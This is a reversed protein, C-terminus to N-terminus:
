SVEGAILKGIESSMLEIFAATSALKNTTVKKGNVIKEVNHRRVADRILLVGFEGMGGRHQECRHERLREAYRAVRGFNGETAKSALGVAVAYLTAPTEPIPASDPDLLIADLSLSIKERFEREFVLREIGPGEGVAGQIAALEVSPPLNLRLLKDAHDWTRPSPYNVIDQSPTFQHMLEPRFRMFAISSPMWGGRKIAWQCLDDLNPEIGVISVFRSKVPELIGSVGARDTRRNTAALITVHDPLVRGNMRRALLWQMYAAQVSPTAQGLDDIFWVCAHKSTLVRHLTGFPKFDAYDKNASLWPFGKPDTPDELAPFSCHLNNGAETAAQEVIQSKGVGPPGVLLAPLRAKIMAALLKSADSPRM